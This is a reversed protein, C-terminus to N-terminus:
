TYIPKLPPMPILHPAQIMGDDSQLISQQQEQSYKHSGCEVPSVTVNGFSNSFYHHQDPVHDLVNFPELPPVHILEPPKSSNEKLSSQSTPQLKQHYLTITPQQTFSIFSHTSPTTNYQAHNIAASLPRCNSSYVPNCINAQYFLNNNPFTPSEPLGNSLRDQKNKSCNFKKRLSLIQSTKVEQATINEYESADHTLCHKIFETWEHYIKKCVCCRHIKRNKHQRIHSPLYDNRLFRNNCVRCCYPREGTHILVHRKIHAPHVFTKKCQDCQFYKKNDKDDIMHVKHYTVPLESLKPPPKIVLILQSELSKLTPTTASQMDFIDEPKSLDITFYSDEKDSSVAPQQNRDCGMVVAV